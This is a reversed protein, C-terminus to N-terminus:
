IGVGHGEFPQDRLRPVFASPIRKTLLSLTSGNKPHRRHDRDRIREVREIKKGRVRAVSEPGEDIDIQHRIAM